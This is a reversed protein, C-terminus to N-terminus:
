DRWLGDFRTANMKAYRKTNQLSSHGLYAALSLSDMGQNVLKFGCAHRLLHPHVDDLGARVSAKQLIKYFGNRTMPANRGTVFVYRSGAPQLRRLKRLGRIERGGLPHISDVGPMSGRTHHRQKLRYVALRQTDLDIQQWRLRILESVRLGHRYAMLIMLKDRQTLAHKIISEVEEETLWQRHGLIGTTNLNNTPGQDSWGTFGLTDRTNVM